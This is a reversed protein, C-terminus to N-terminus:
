EGLYTIRVFGGGKNGTMTNGMRAPDSPDYNEDRPDFNPDRPDPMTQAGDITTANESDDPNTPNMYLMYKSALEWQNTESAPANNKWSTFSAPTYVWGSGGGGGYWPSASGGYWGGGGGTSYGDV